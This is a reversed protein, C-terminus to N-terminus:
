FAANLLLNKRLNMHLPLDRSIKSDSRAKLGKPFLPPYSIPERKYEASFSRQHQKRRPLLVHASLSPSITKSSSLSATSNTSERSSTAVHAAEEKERRAVLLPSDSVPCLMPQQLLTMGVPMDDSEALVSSRTANRTACTPSSPASTTLQPLQPITPTARESCHTSPTRSQFGSDATSDLSGLSSHGECDAYFAMRNLSTKLMDPSWFSRAAERALPTGLRMGNPSQVLPRGSTFSSRSRSLPRPKNSPM